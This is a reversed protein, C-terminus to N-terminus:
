REMGTHPEWRSRIVGGHGAFHTMGDIRRRCSLLAIAIGFVLANPLRPLLTLGGDASAAKRIACSSTPPWKVRYQEGRSAALKADELLVKPHFHEYNHPASASGEALTAAGAPNITSEITSM